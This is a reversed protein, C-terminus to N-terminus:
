EFEPVLHLLGPALKDLPALRRYVYLAHISADPGPLGPVPAAGLANSPDVRVILANDPSGAGFCTWGEAPLNVQASRLALRRCLVVVDINLPDAIARAHLADFAAQDGAWSRVVLDPVAQEDAPLIAVIAPALQARGGELALKYGVEPPASTLAASLADEFLQHRAQDEWFPDSALTPAVLLADALASVAADGDGLEADMLSAAFAVQPQQYGLRMAQALATRAADRDGQGLELRAVNLWAIPYDDIEASARLHTLASGPDGIQAEAVGLTFLYPPMGPDQAVAVRAAAAAAPWNFGNAERAAVDGSIAASESYALWAGATGFVVALAVAVPAFARTSMPPKDRTTLADLRAVTLAYAFWVAPMNAYLDFMQHIVLYAGGFLAAWGLRRAVPDESRLGRLLLRLVVAVVVIGALAGVLGLEALTQLVLNHAHPIYYDVDPPQTYRIRDVVWMGPGVGTLPHGSFMALSAHAFATRTDGAPEALRSAVAPSFVLAVIGVSVLLAAALPGFAKSRIAARLDSRNRRQRLFPVAVLVAAAGLGVWGSRSGTLFVTAASLAGLACLLGRRTGTIVGLEAASAALLLIVVTALGSPDGLGLSEFRPRLPPSVFRGLEAWLMGWRIFVVAIYISTFGFGLLVPLANLRRGFYGHAFLRQLVLYSGAVLVGYAIYDFGLRPHESFLDSFALSAIAALLAISLSSRPRWHASRIAAVLWIALAVILLVASVARFAVFYVGYSGGGGGATLYAIALVLMAWPLLLGRDRRQSPM